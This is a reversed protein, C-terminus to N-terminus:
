VAASSVDIIEEKFQQSKPVRGLIHVIFENLVSRIASRAKEPLDQQNKLLYVWRANLWRGHGHKKCFECLVGGQEFSFFLKGGQPPKGCELCSAWRPAYGCLRLMQLTLALEDIHRDGKSLKFLTNRWWDFVPKQPDGEGVLEWLCEVVYSALAFNQLRTRLEIHADLLDVRELRWLNSQANRPPILYARVQTFLDVSGGFRKRSKRLAKAFASLKGYTPTLFGVIADSEGYPVIRVVIAEEVQTRSGM